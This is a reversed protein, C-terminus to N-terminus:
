HELHRLSGCGEPGLECQSRALTKEIEASSKDVAGSGTDLTLSKDAELFSDPAQNCVKGTVDPLTVTWAFAWPHLQYPTCGPM